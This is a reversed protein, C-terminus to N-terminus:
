HWRAVRDADDVPSTFTAARLQQQPSRYHCVDRAAEETLGRAEQVCRDCLHTWKATKDDRDQVGMEEVEEATVRQGAANHMAGEGAVRRWHDKYGSLRCARVNKAIASVKGSEDTITAWEGEDDQASGPLEADPAAKAARKRAKAITKKATHQETASSSPRPISKAAAAAAAGASEKPLVPM